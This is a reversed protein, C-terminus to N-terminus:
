DGSASVAADFHAKLAEDTSAWALNKVYISSSEVEDGQVEAAAAVAAMAAEKSAAKKGAAAAAAAAAPATAAAAAAPAAAAPAATGPAPRPPPPTSFIGKPAWELYLPVHQYRKYALSKFARRADQAPPAPLPLYALQPSNRKTCLPQSVCLSSCPGPALRAPPQCAPVPQSAHLCAPQCGAAGVQPELYEVLALTRTPPLM